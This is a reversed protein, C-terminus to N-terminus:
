KRPITLTKESIKGVQVNVFVVTITKDSKQFWLGVWKPDQSNETVGVLTGYEDPIADAFKAPEFTLTGPSKSELKKCSVTALCVVLICFAYVLKGRM